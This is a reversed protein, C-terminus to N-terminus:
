QFGGYDTHRSNSLMSKKAKIEYTWKQSNEKRIKQKEHRSKKVAVIGCEKEENVM